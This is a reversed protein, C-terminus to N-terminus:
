TTTKNLKNVPLSINYAPQHKVDTMVFSSQVSAINSLLSLKSVMFCQYENMNNVEIKLLYDCLGTMYYCGVVEDFELMKNEFAKRLELSSDKLKVNTFSVLTNNHNNRDPMAVYRQIYDEQELWYIRETILALEKGLKDAIEKHSLRADYHLLQLIHIDTQDLQIM